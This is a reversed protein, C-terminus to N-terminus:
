GARGDPDGGGLDVVGELAALLEEKAEQPNKGLTTYGAALRHGGGGFARAITGVDVSESRLSAKTGGEIQRLHGVVEVGAVTRLHDISEKSDLETAGTREYDDEDVVSILAEGYREANAMSVGVINLQEVTGTRNIRDDVEAPVVGARLLDAVLEHSEPSVNRFRFGGTDTSLGAYIAEASRVDLPVGLEAYLSAVIQASAAVEHDVINLEGYFPNDEHHDLNLRVPHVGEHPVGIRDPRSTDVVLLHHDPPCEVLPEDPLLWRLYNPVEETHCFRAEAGLSRVLYVLAAASGIADGDAGVHTTVAVKDLSRLFDAVERATNNARTHGQM